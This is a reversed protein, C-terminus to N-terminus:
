KVIRCIQHLANVRMSISEADAANDIKTADRKLRAVSVQLAQQSRTCLVKGSYDELGPKTSVLQSLEEITATLESYQSEPEDTEKAVEREKNENALNDVQVADGENTQTTSRTIAIVAEPVATSDTHTGVTSVDEGYTASQGVEVSVLYKGLNM